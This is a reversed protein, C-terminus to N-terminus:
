HFPIIGGHIRARNTFATKLSVVSTASKALYITRAQTMVFRRIFCLFTLRASLDVSSVLQASSTRQITRKGTNLSTGASKASPCYSSSICIDSSSESSEASSSASRDYVANKRRFLFIRNDSKESTKFFIAINNALRAFYFVVANKMNMMRMPFFIPIRMELNQTGVTMINVMPTFTKISGFVYFNSSEYEFCVWFKKKSRCTLLGGIEERPNKKEKGEDQSEWIGHGELIRPGTKRRHSAM